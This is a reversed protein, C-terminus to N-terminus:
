AGHEVIDAVQMRLMSLEFARWVSMYLCRLTIPSILMTHRAIVM